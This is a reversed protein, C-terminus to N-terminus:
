AAGRPEAHSSSTARPQRCPVGRHRHLAALQLLPRVRERSQRATRGRQRVHEHRQLILRRERLRLQDVCRPCRSRGRHTRTRAPPEVVDERVRGAVARWARQDKRRGAAPRAEQLERRRMRAANAPRCRRRLGASCRSPTMLSTRLPCRHSLEVWSMLSRFYANRHRSDRPRARTGSPRPERTRSRTSDYASASGGIVPKTGRSSSPCTGASAAAAPSIRVRYSAIVRSNASRSCHCRWSGTAASKPWSCKVASASRLSGPLPRASSNAM